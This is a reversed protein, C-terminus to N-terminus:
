LQSVEKIHLEPEGPFAPPAQLGLRQALWDYLGPVKSALPLEPNEQPVVNFMSADWRLTGIEKGTQLLDFRSLFPHPKKANPSGFLQVYDEAAIEALLWRHEQSRNVRPDGSLGRIKAYTSQRWHENDTLPFGDQQISYYHTVHHGYEHALTRAFSEVTRHEGGGYLDIRGPLMKSRGLLDVSTRLRYEGAIGKGKPYGDQVKVESLLKFEEGHTNNKLEQYLQRLKDESDWAASESVIRIGEPSAYVTAAAAPQTGVWGAAVVMGLGALLKEVLPIKM